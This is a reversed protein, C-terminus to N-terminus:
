RILINTPLAIDTFPHRERSIARSSSAPWCTEDSWSIFISCPVRAGGEASLPSFAESEELIRTQITALIEAAPSTERRQPDMLSAVDQRTIELDFMEIERGGNPVLLAIGSKYNEGAGSDDYPFYFVVVTTPDVLHHMTPMPVAEDQALDGEAASEDSPAAAGRAVALESFETPVVLPDEGLMQSVNRMRQILIAMARLYPQKEADTAATTAAQRYLFILREFYRRLFPHIRDKESLYILCRAIYDADALAYAHMGMIQDADLLLEACLLRLEMADRSLGDANGSFFMFQDLFSRMGSRATEFAAADKAEAAKMLELSVGAAKYFLIPIVNKTSFNRVSANVLPEATRLLASAKELRGAHPLFDPRAMLLAQKAIMKPLTSTTKSTIRAAEEYHGMANQWYDSGQLRAPRGYLTLDALRELTATKRDDLRNGSFALGTRSIRFYISNIKKLSETFSERARRDDGTFHAITGMGHLGYTVYMSDVPDGSSWENCERILKATQFAEMASSVRWFNMRFWGVQEHYNAVLPHPTQHIASNQLLHQIESFLQWAERMNYYDSQQSAQNTYLAVQFLSVRRRQRLEDTLQQFKEDSLKADGKVDALFLAYDALCMQYFLSATEACTGRPPDAKLQTEALQYWQQADQIYDKRKQGDSLFALQHCIVARTYIDLPTVRDEAKAFYEGLRGRIDNLVHIQQERSIAQKSKKQLDSIIDRHLPHDDLFDQVERSALKKTLYQKVASTNPNAYAYPNLGLFEIGCVRQEDSQRLYPFDSMAHAMALRALPMYWPMEHFWWQGNLGPLLIVDTFIDWEEPTRSFPPNPWVSGSAAPEAMRVDGTQKHTSHMKAPSLSAVSPKHAIAPIDRTPQDIFTPQAPTAARRAFLNRMDIRGILVDSMERECSYLKPTQPKGTKEYQLMELRVYNTLQGLDIDIVQGSKHALDGRLGQSLHYIFRGYADGSSEEEYSVEGASCSSLIYVNPVEPLETERATDEFGGGTDRCADIFMVCKGSFGGNLVFNLVGDGEHSGKARPRYLPILATSSGPLATAHCLYRQGDLQVGHGSFAIVLLDDEGPLRTKLERIHKEITSSSIEEGPSALHVINEEPFGCEILARKLNIMDNTCGRLPTLSRYNNISILLAARRGMQGSAPPPPIERSATIAKARTVPEAESAVEAEKVEVAAAASEVGRLAPPQEAEIQFTPIAPFAWKAGTDQGPLRPALITESASDSLWQTTLFLTASVTFLLFRGAM